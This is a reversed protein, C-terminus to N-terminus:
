VLSPFSVSCQLRTIALHDFMGILGHSNVTQVGTSRWFIDLHENMFKISFSLSVDQLDVLVEPYKFGEVPPAESINMKGNTFTLKEINRALLVVKDGIYVMNEKAVFRLSTTNSKFNKYGSNMVTIGISGMWTVESRRSDPLFMANMHVKENSILNFAFNHEGQVTFCLLQGTPLMISFHPDDGGGSPCAVFKTSIVLCLPSTNKYALGESVAHFDM